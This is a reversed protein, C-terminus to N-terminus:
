DCSGACGRSGEPCHNCAQFQAASNLAGPGAARSSLVGSFGLRRCVTCRRSDDGRVLAQLNPHQRCGNGSIRHRFVLCSRGLERRRPVVLRNARTVGAQKSGALQQWVMALFNAGILCALAGCGPKARTHRALRDGGPPEPQTPRQREILYCGWATSLSISRSIPRELNTGEGTVPVREFAGPLFSGPASPFERVAAKFYTRDLPM